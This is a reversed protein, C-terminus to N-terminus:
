GSAPQRGAVRCVMVSWGPKDLPKCSGLKGLLFTDTAEPLIEYESSIELLDRFWIASPWYPAVVTAAAGDERLKQVVDALESWPPNVWNVELEGTTPHARWHRAMADVAETLPDRWRSNFRRCQANNASAFRDVTHPGWRADLDAFLQPHLKWDEDDAERSLADAWVNAASRIFEARLDINNEDLLRWLKRLEAMIAPSRTTVNNLIHMVAQNDEYLRVRHGRLEDLFTEVTLRVAKLELLTIHHVLQHPRWFGRAPTTGNHM